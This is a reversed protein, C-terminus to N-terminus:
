KSSFMMKIDDKTGLKGDPGRSIIIWNNITLRRVIFKNGWSDSSIKSNNNMLDVIKDKIAVSNEYNKTFNIINKKLENMNLRTVYIKESTLIEGTNSYLYYGIHVFMLVILLIPIVRWIIGKM